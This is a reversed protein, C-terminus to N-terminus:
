ATSSTRRSRERTTCRLFGSSSTSPMAQRHPSRRLHAVGRRAWTRLRWGGDPHEKNARRRIAETLGIIVAFTVFRSVLKNWDDMPAAILILLIALADVSWAIWPHRVLGPAAFERFARALPSPGALFALVVTITGVAVATWAIAM